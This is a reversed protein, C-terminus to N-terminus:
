AFMNNIDSVSGDENQGYLHKLEEPVFINSYILLARCLDTGMSEFNEQTMHLGKQEGRDIGSFTSEM